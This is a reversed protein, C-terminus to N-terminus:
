RGDADEWFGSWLGRRSAKATNAAAEFEMRMTTNPRIAMPKAYGSSVMELNAMRGNELYIFCLLRGYHDEREPGFALWVTEGPTMMSALWAKAAIGDRVIDDVTRGERRSDRRAKSNPAKEPADMGIFRVFRRMGDFKVAITDGDVVSLLLAPKSESPVGPPLSPTVTFFAAGNKERANRGQPAMASVMAFIGLAVLAALFGFGASQSIKM